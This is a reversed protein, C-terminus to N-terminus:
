FATIVTLAPASSANLVALRDKIIKWIMSKYFMKQFEIADIRFDTEFHRAELPESQPPAATAGGTPNVRGKEDM